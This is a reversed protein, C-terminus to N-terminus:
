KAPVRLVNGLRIGRGVEAAREELLQEADRVAAAADTTENVLTFIGDFLAECEKSGDTIGAFALVPRRYKRALAAVGAPGKGHATQADIRGEGTFVFDAISIREELHAAEAVLDFGSRVTARCFTMLGFGLGGAAGSGPADRFDCGLDAAAIDALHELAQEIWAIAAADAGKQSAFVRATGRAGLLPNDVDCAAVIPPLDLREPPNIRTLALLTRPSVALPEGDSTLFQCGLAAAMGAGGDSTASGGLGVLIQKAGRRAAHFILEGTGHTTADLPRPMEEGLCCLGSAASMDIAATQNPLWAYRADVPAGLPGTARLAIWEGGLTTLLTAAFGEGGDAIPMETFEAGDLERALGRRIAAAAQAATLTGKFKDPSIIIRM